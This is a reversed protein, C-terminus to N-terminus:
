VSLQSVRRQATGVTPGAARPPRKGEARAPHDQYTKKFGKGEPFLWCLGGASPASPPPCWRHTVPLPGAAKPGTPQGGGPLRPSSPGCGRAFAANEM